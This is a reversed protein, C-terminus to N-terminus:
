SPRWGVGTIATSAFADGPWLTGDPEPRDHDDLRGLPLLGPGGQAYHGSGFQPALSVKVVASPRPAAQTPGVAVMCEACILVGAAGCSACAHVIKGKVSRQRKGAAKRRAVYFFSDAPRM